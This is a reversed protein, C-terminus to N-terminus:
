VAALERVEDTQGPANMQIEEALEKTEVSQKNREFQILHVENLVVETLYRVSKDQGEYSRNILRGEVFVPSGKKLYRACIEALREWAVVRHFDASKKLVGEHDFWENNTAIAFSLVSKGSKTSKLDPDAVVHGLLEVRNISRM